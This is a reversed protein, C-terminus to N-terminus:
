RQGSSPKAVNLDGRTELGKKNGMAACAARAAKAKPVLVQTRTQFCGLM